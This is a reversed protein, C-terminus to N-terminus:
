STRKFHCLISFRTAANTVLPKMTTANLLTIKIERARSNIHHWLPPFQVSGGSPPNLLFQGIIVDKPELYLAFPSRDEVIINCSITTPISAAHWDTGLVLVSVVKLACEGTGFTGDPVSIKLDDASGTFLFYKNLAMTRKLLYIKKECNKKVRWLLIVHSFFATALELRSPV